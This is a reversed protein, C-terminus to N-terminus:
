NYEINMKFLALDDKNKKLLDNIVICHKDWNSHRIEHLDLLFFFIKLYTPECLTLNNFIRRKSKQKTDSLLKNFTGYYKCKNKLYNCCSVFAINLSSMSSKYILKEVNSWLKIVILSNFSLLNQFFYQMKKKM